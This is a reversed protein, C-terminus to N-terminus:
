VSELHSFFLSQFPIQVWYNCIKDGTKLTALEFLLLFFFFFVGFLLLCGRQRVTSLTKGEWILSFSIGREGETGEWSNQRRPQSYMLMYICRLGRSSFGLLKGLLLSSPAEPAILVEGTGSVSFSTQSM